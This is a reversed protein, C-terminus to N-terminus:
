HIQKETPKLGHGNKTEPLTTMKGVTAPLIEDIIYIIQDNTLEYLKNQKLEKINKDISIQPFKTKFYERFTNCFKEKNKANEIKNNFDEMAFKILFTRFSDSQQKISDIFNNINQNKTKYIEGTNIGKMETYLKDFNDQNNNSLTNLEQRLQNFYKIIIKYRKLEELVITYLEFSKNCDEKNGIWNIINEIMQLNHTATIVTESIPEDVARNKTNRLKDIFLNKDVYQSKYKKIEPEYMAWNHVIESIM